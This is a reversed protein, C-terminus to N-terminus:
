PAGGRVDLGTDEPQEGTDEVVITEIRVDRVQEDSIEHRLWLKAAPSDMGVSVTLQIEGAWRQLEADTHDGGGEIQTISAVTYVREESVDTPCSCAWAIAVPALLLGAAASATLILSRGTM